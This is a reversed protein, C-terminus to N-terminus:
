LIFTNLLFRFLYDLGGLFFAIVTSVLVVAITYHITEARTPWTVQKLERQSSKLFAVFRHTANM